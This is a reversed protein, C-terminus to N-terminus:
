RFILLFHFRQYLVEVRFTFYHCLLYILQIVPKITLALNCLSSLFHYAKFSCIVVVLSACEIGHAFPHGIIKFVHGLIIWGTTGLPPFALFQLYLGQLAISTRERLSENDPLWLRGRGIKGFCNSPWGVMLRAQTRLGVPFWVVPFLCNRM